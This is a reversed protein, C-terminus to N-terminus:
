TSPRHESRTRLSALHKIPDEEDEETEREAIALEYRGTPLYGFLTKSVSLAIETRIGM